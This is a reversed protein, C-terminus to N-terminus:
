DGIRGLTGLPQPRKFIIKFMTTSIEIAAAIEWGKDGLNALTEQLKQAPTDVVTYEFKTM